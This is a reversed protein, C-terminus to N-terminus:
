SVERTPAVQDEKFSEVHHEQSENAINVNDDDNDMLEGNVMDEMDNIFAQNCM